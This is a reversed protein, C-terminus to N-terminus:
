LLDQDFKSHIKHLLFILYYKLFEPWFYIKRLLEGKKIKSLLTKKIKKEYDKLTFPNEPDIMKKAIKACFFGYIIGGGTFPKVFGSSEGCLFVRKSVLKELPSILIPATEIKFDEKKFKKRLFSRFNEFSKQKPLLCTGWEELGNQPIKWLFFGPLEKKLFIELLDNEKKKFSQAGILYLLKQNPNLKKGFFSFCGTSDAVIKALFSKGDLLVECFNKREKIEEVRKEFLIEVGEKKAEKLLFEIFKEKDLLFFEREFDFFSKGVHVRIKKFEKKLIAEKKLKEKEFFLFINKSFISSCPKKKIEAEKKQELILVKKGKKAFEKGLFLGVRGGGIILLDYIRM